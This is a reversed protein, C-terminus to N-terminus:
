QAKQSTISNLLNLEKGDSESNDYLKMNEYLEEQSVREVHIIPVAPVSTFRTIDEGFTIKLINYKSKNDGKILNYYEDYNKIDNPLYHFQASITSVPNGKGETDFWGFEGEEIFHVNSIITIPNEPMPYEVGSQNTVDSKNDKNCSVLVSITLTIIAICFIAITIISIKNRFLNKM